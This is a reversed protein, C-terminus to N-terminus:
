SVDMAPARATGAVRVGVERIGVVEVNGHVDVLHIEAVKM